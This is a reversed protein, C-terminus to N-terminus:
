DSHTGKLQTLCVISQKKEPLSRTLYVYFLRMTYSKGWTVQNLRFM